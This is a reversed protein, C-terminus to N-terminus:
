RRKSFQLADNALQNMARTFNDYGANNTVNPFTATINQTIKVERNQIGQPM